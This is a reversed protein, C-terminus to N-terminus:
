PTACASKFVLQIPDGWVVGDTNTPDYLIINCRYTGAPIPEQGLKLVLLGDEGGIDFASPTTVSNVSWACGLDAVEVKTIHTLDTTVGNASLELDVTNDRALYVTEKITTSM